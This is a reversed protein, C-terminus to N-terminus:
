PNGQGTALNCLCISLGRDGLTGPWKQGERLDMQTKIHATVFIGRSDQLMSFKWHQLKTSGCQHMERCPPQTQILSERCNKDCRRSLLHEPVSLLFASEPSVSQCSSVASIFMMYICVHTFCQRAIEKLKGLLRLSIILFLVEVVKAKTLPYPLHKCTHLVQGHIALRTWPEM